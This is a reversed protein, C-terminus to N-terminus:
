DKLILSPLTYNYCFETLCGADVREAIRKKKKSTMVRIIIISVWRKTGLNFCGKWSFTVSNFLFMLIFSWPSYLWWRKLQRQFHFGPPNEFCLCLSKGPPGPNLFGALAPSLPEIQARPLNWISHPLQARSSCIIFGVCGLALARCCSFVSCHFAQM